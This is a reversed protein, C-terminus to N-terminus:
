HRSKRRPGPELRRAPRLGLDNTILTPIRIDRAASRANQATNFFSGGRDVVLGHPVIERNGEGDIAPKEYAHADYVDRCWEWVNGHVDHLGFANPKFSGVPAHAFFGDDLSYSKADAIAPWTLGVREASLDAFNVSGRLTEPDDGTSWVSETGGRAAYEWQAETPLVLDLHRLVDRCMEHSVQEVPHLLTFEYGRVVDGASYLSPNEGTARLWQGQTMEYKSIFFPDLTVDHLPGEPQRADPSDTAGMRFTGGPLLVFVIGSSADIELSGDTSREPVTGTEIDAFEQLGSKPDRGVPVLGVQPVIRLGRYAPSADEDAIEAITREWAARHDDISRKEVTMARELRAEVSAITAGFPRPSALEELGQVLETLAEHLHADAPKWPLARARLEALREVHLDHRSELEQARAIWSEMAPIKEPRAPWLSEEAERALGARVYGDTRLLLEHRSRRELFIVGLLGAVIVVVLAASATALARNRRVWSTLEAIAGTRYARVVRGELFARLDHAMALMDSYRDDRRRAMARRTIAALEPPVDHRFREVPEPPGELVRRLLERPSPPDDPDVYPPRRALLEYLMAGVSYIDSRQDLEEIRGRAQEPPMYAPTGLVTGDATLLASPTLEPGLRSDDLPRNRSPADSGESRVRALGWDMVYTEGFRGVMINAPKLDRHIVGKEHAYAVAECVRVLVDLIRAETWGSDGARLLAFVHRLDEGQVRRMTFFARGDDDFGLEHVPVIGPHDLQATVRGEALFRTLVEDAGRASENRAELLLKMALPRALKQDWVEVVRGMGGRGIEERFVYRPSADEDGAGTRSTVERAADEFWQAEREGLGLTERTETVEVPSSAAHLSHLVRLARALEPREACFADFDTPDERRALELWEAYAAEASM